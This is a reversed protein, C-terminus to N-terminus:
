KAGADAGGRVRSNGKFGCTPFLRTLTLPASELYQRHGALPATGLGTKTGHCYLGRGMSAYWENEGSTDGGGRRYLQNFLQGKYLLTMGITSGILCSNLM